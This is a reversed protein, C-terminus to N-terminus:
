GDSQGLMWRHGFPDRFVATRGHDSDEPGRDLIAGREVARQTIADVDDTTLYLTVAAGRGEAPAEVHIEPYPDSMMVTAGDFSLEVHGIRGDDMVIPEYTVTAGMADVYWDIASRADKTCIYPRIEGM